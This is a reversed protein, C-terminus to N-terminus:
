SVTSISRKVIIIALRAGGAILCSRSFAYLLSSSMCPIIILLSVNIVDLRSILVVHTIGCGSEFPQLRFPQLFWGFM